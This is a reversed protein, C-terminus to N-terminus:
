VACAHPSAAICADCDRLVRAPLSAPLSARTWNCVSNSLAILCPQSQTTTSSSGFLTLSPRFGPRLPSVQPVRVKRQRRCSLTLGAGGAKASIGSVQVVINSYQPPRRQNKLQRPLNPPHGLDSHLVVLTGWTEGKLGPNRLALCLREFAVTRDRTRTHRVVTSCLWIGMRQLLACFVRIGRL